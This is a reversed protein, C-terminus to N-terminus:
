KPRVVGVVVADEVARLLEESTNQWMLMGTAFQKLTAHTLKQRHPPIPKTIAGEQKCYYQFISDDLAMFALFFAAMERPEGCLHRIGELIYINDETALQGQQFNKVRAHVGYLAKSLLARRQTQDPGNILTIFDCQMSTIFGSGCPIKSIREGFIAIEDDQDMDTTTHAAM